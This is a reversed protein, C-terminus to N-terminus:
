HFYERSRQLIFSRSKQHFAPSWCPKSKRLNFLPTSFVMASSQLGLVTRMNMKMSCSCRKTEALVSQSHLLLAPLHVFPCHDDVPSIHFSREYFLHFARLVSAIKLASACTAHCGPFSHMAGRGMSTKPSRALRPLLTYPGSMRILYSYITSKLVHIYSLFHM